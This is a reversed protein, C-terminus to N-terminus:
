EHSEALSATEVPSLVGKQLQFLRDAHGMVERAHTVMILTRKEERVLSELLNLVERGTELDLNGTPEDALILKPQHALARAIALRQQEGGSLVDPYSASRDSLGVRELMGEAREREPPGIAGILELPLLVNELATLTPVLNFAQFVFGIEARRLLTRREDSLESLVQEGLEVTGHDPLELGSIVNLLTSKGSGSRGLLVAFDGAEFTVDVGELVARERGGERFGKRVGSLRVRAGPSVATETM